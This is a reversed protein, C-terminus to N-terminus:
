AASETLATSHPAPRPVAPVRVHSVPLRLSHEPQTPWRKQRLVDTAGIPLPRRHCRAARYPRVGSGNSSAEKPEESLVRTLNCIAEQYRRSPLAIFNRALDLLMRQQPTPAFDEANAMGEFFFSVDVGLANAIQYLRGAAIRNVGKEYKHAQQYTVGIVEAMQQQTLGLMIRRQRIRMSVYHDVDLARSRGGTGRSVVKATALQNM